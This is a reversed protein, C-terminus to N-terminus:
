KHTSLSSHTSRKARGLREGDKVIDLRECNVPDVNKNLRRESAKSATDVGNGAKDM